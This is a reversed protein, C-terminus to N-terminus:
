PRLAKFLCKFFTLLTYPELQWDYMWADVGELRYKVSNGSGGGHM